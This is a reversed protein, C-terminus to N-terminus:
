IRKEVTAWPEVWATGDEIREIVVDTDSTVPTGDLTRAHLAHAVGDAVFQIEGASSTIPQTVRAISDKPSSLQQNHITQQLNRTPFVM